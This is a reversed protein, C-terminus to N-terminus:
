KFYSWNNHVFLIYVFYLVAAFQNDNISESVMSRVCSESEALDHNLIVEAMERSIPSHINTCDHKECNHGYGITTKGQYLLITIGVDYTLM